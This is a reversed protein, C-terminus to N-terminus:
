GGDLRDLIHVLRQRYSQLAARGAETLRLLTHPMKDVFEKEVDVYGADELKSLHSSLNGRTLGTQRLLFLFDASEVVYLVSMIMLRAPEHVIRDIEGLPQVDLGALDDVSM